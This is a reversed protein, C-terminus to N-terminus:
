MGLKCSFTTQIAYKCAADAFDISGGFYNRLLNKVIKKCAVFNVSIMQIAIFIKCILFLYELM